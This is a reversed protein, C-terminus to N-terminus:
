LYRDPLTTLLDTFFGSTDTAKPEKLNQVWLGQPSSLMKRFNERMAINRM